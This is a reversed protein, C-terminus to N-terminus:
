DEGGADPYVNWILISGDDGGSIIQKDDPAWKVQKITNSHGQGATLCRMNRLDWLKVLQDSGGTAVISEMTNAVAVSHAEGDDGIDVQAVHNLQRLDWVTLKREQGVTLVLSSSWAQPAM